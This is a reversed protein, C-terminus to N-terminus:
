TEAIYSLGKFDIWNEEGIRRPLPDGEIEKSRVPKMKSGPVGTNLFQV